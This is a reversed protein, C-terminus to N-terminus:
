GPVFALSEVRRDRLRSRIVQAAKLLMKYAFRCDGEFFPRLEKCDFEIVRCPTTAKASATSSYPPVIASWGFVEGEGVTSVNVDKNILNNTLQNTLPQPVSQDTVRIAIAVNGEVVLYFTRLEDGEQFFHHGAEIEIIGASDALTKLQGNNLGAFFPYRRLIETSIM